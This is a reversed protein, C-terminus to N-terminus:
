SSSFPESVNLAPSRTFVTGTATRSSARDSASSVNTSSSPAASQAVTPSPSPVPVITSSSSAVVSSDTRPAVAVSPSVNSKATDSLSGLPRVTVVPYM